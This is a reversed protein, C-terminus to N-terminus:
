FFCRFVPSLFQQPGLLPQYRPLFRVQPATPNFHMSLQSPFALAHSKKKMEVVEKLLLIFESSLIPELRNMQGPKVWLVPDSTFKVPWSSFLSFRFIRAFITCTQPPSDTSHPPSQPSFIGLRFCCIEFRGGFIRVFVDKWKDRLVGCQRM